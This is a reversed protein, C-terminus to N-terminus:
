AAPSSKVLPHYAASLVSSATATSKGRRRHQEQDTFARQYAGSQRCPFGEVFQLAQQKASEPADVHDLFEQFSQDAGTEAANMQEFLRDMASM